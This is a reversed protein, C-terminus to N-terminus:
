EENWIPAKIKALFTAHRTREEESPQHPRPERLARQVSNGGTAAGATAAFELGPQRGGILELYVKALLQCDLVASHKDRASLDIGYRRCLMDLSAPAGPFRKRAMLLTDIYATALKPRALRALEANVFKLDFEANHIVLTADAIFALFDDAAAAFVAHASLFDASLGHVAFAEPPVDREPNIYRHFVIGTPIHNLLEVGALEVIRHGSDPDLGTTETDFVIERM